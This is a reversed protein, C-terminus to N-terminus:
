FVSLTEEARPPAQGPVTTVLQPLTRNAEVVVVRVGEEVEKVWPVEIETLPVTVVALPVGVPLTPRTVSLMSGAAWLLVSNARLPPLKVPALMLQSGPPVYLMQPWYPPSELFPILADALVCTVTLGSFLPM